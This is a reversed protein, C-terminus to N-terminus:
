AVPLALKHGVNRSLRDTGDELTLFGFTEVFYPLYRDSNVFDVDDFVPYTLNQLTQKAVSNWSCLSYSTSHFSSRYSLFLLSKRTHWISAHSTIKRFSLVQSLGRHLGDGAPIHVFPTGRLLCSHQLIHLSSGSSHNNKLTEWGQM